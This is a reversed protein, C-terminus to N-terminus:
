DETFPDADYRATTEQVKSFSGKTRRYRILNNLLRAAKTLKGIQEESDSPSIQNRKAAKRLWMRSERASARAIIFFNIGDKVGWRGDGEVLNACVSDAARILQEGTTRQARPSWSDVSDWCWDSVEDFLRYLEMEEIPLHKPKGASLESM